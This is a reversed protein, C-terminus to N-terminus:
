KQSQNIQINKIDMDKETPKKSSYVEINHHKQILQTKSTTPQQEEEIITPHVNDKAAIKIDIVEITEVEKNAPNLKPM